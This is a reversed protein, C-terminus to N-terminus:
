VRHLSGTYSWLRSWFSIRVPREPWLLRVVELDSDDPLYSVVLAAFSEGERATRWDDQSVWLLGEERLLQSEKPRITLSYYDRTFRGAHENWDEEQHHERAVVIGSLELIRCEPRMAASARARRCEIIVALALLGLCLGLAIWGGRSGERVWKFGHFIGPGLYWLSALALIFTGQRGSRRDCGRQMVGAARQHDHPSFLYPM